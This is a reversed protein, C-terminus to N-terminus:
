FATALFVQGSCELFAAPSPPAKAFRYVIMWAGAVVKNEEDFALYLLGKMSLGSAHLQDEDIYIDEMEALHYHIGGIEGLKRGDPLVDDPSLESPLRWQDESNFISFIEWSQPNEKSSRPSPGTNNRM